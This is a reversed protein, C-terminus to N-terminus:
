ELTCLNSNPLYNVIKVKLDRHIVNKEHLYQVGKLIQYFIYKTVDESLKKKEYLLQALDGGPVYELFLYMNNEVLLTNHLGM